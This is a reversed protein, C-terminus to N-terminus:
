MELIKEIEDNDIHERAKLFEDLPMDGFNIPNGKKDNLIKTADDLESVYFYFNDDCIPDNNDDFIINFNEKLTKVVKPEKFMSTGPYATATFMSRNIAEKVNTYENNNKVMSKEIIEQQWRIFAVSTKLHELTEGPYGMIWTCNAHIGVEHCNKIAETMTHPFMYAKGDVSTEVLGNRLIFGGKEMRTLTTEHASEAGFGIYVCGAEAMPYLRDDAEDMRTHTGWRMFVNNERFVEPLMSMRKKSVAFNDDVYGIFDLNYNDRYLKMQHALDHASRVGYNREGQAGRYCFACSYPCGRSSVTNLSRSMKFPAASSNNAALGWIPVNIYNELIDNGFPDDKLLDWAPYLINDLNKPRGGEYVFRHKGRYMAVHHKSVKNTLVASLKGYKKISHVDRLIDVIVDDGESRAIGDLEPIWNFLGFKIETALGNGSVLFCYPQHKKVIKSFIEQWRLTPIIGSFAILDQDGHKNLHALFYNEAEIETLHRGNKLGLAESYKDKIRYANLDLLTSEVGMNLLKSALLAPGEPAVVPPASERLPMNVFTVKLGKLNDINFDDESM